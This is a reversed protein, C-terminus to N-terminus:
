NFNFTENRAQNYCNAPNLSFGNSNNGSMNNPLGQGLNNFGRKRCQADTHGTRRCYECYSSERIRKRCEDNVHGRRKCYHCFLDPKRYGDSSRKPPSRKDDSRYRKNDPESRERERSRKRSGTLQINNSRENTKKNPKEDSNRRKTESKEEPENTQEASLFQQIEEKTKDITEPNPEVDKTSEESENTSEETKKPAEDIKPPIDEKPKSKIEGEKTGKLISQDLKEIIEKQINEPSMTGGGNHHINVTIYNKIMKTTRRATQCKQDKTVKAPIENTQIEQETTKPSRDDTQTWGDKMAKRRNEEILEVLKKHKLLNMLEEKREAKPLDRINKKPKAKEESPGEVKLSENKELKVTNEVSKEVKKPSKQSSKSAQPEQTSDIVNQQIKILELIGSEEIRVTSAQPSKSIKKPSTFKSVLFGRLEEFNEFSQDKIADGAPGQLKTKIMAFLTKTLSPSEVKQICELFHDLEDPNGSYVPIQKYLTSLFTKMKEKDSETLLEQNGSM